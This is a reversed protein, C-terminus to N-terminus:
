KNNAARLTRRAAQALEGAKPLIEVAKAVQPDQDIMVQNAPVSGLAATALSYRLRTTIFEIEQPVASGSVKWTSSKQLFKTFENVLDENVQFDASRLRVASNVAVGARYKEFGHVRGNILDSAFFFIPDLLALRNENLDPNLLLLDPEIGDGGYVKRHTVTESEPRILTPSRHNYYDYTSGDSYDRQISRGSPTFYKATTITLGSGLPLNVVSQVLGKGFTKEGVILARDHDQLAGAVVESASASNGDVLVVLPMSEAKNNSSRWVRNDIKSRGRQSVIVDGAPLFREAVKVAQDLIGGTNGRLDLVLSNMGRRRLSTLARDLEDYTTYNFGSTLDIYGVGPKLMYADPISPQPVRGRKLEVTETKGTYAREILLRVITGNPGRVKDRVIDSTKGSVDLGDVSVIRDGFRLGAKAASSGPFTAVVYTNVKGDREYNAITSGIGFYESRQEELLDLYEAADFYNSHPDLIGLMGDISSKIAANANFAKGSFYNKRIIELAEEVDTTIRSKEPDGLEPRVATPNHTASASFTSGRKIKFPDAGPLQDLPKPQVTQALLPSAAFICAIGLFSICTKLM